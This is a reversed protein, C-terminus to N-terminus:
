RVRFVAFDSSVYVPDLYNVRYFDFTSLSRLALYDPTPGTSPHEVLARDESIYEVGGSGRRGVRVALRTLTPSFIIHTIGQRKLAGDIEDFSKNLALLRRWETNEWSEDALYPHRMHYGMQFGFLKVKSGPPANDNVFRVPHHYAVQNLFERRSLKGSIFSLNNMMTISGISVVIPVALFAPVIYGPLGRGLPTRASLKNALVALSYGAILALAPYIPLLFRSIWTASTAILFFAICLVVWWSLWKRKPLFLYLPALLFAFNPYHRYDGLFYANPNTYYEWFRLPHRSSRLSAEEVLEKEIRGVLEPAEQRVRAFHAEQQREDQQNFYRPKGEDFQAVEGTRFPYVPNQFWVYNKILWPSATVLIITSFIFVDRLATMRAVHKRVLWEFLLMGGLLALWAVATLKIGVSLGGLLGAAILWGKGGGDLYVMLAFTTLFLMGTLTVDIRATVGVEIVMAGGILAIMAFVGTTRDLFRSCFAYVSLGTLVALALSFLRVAIDAEAMLFLGYIMQILFPMNGLSNDSLPYIRGREAFAKMVPLHYITEDPTWPPVSAEVLALLLLGILMVLVYKTRNNMQLGVAVSRRICYSLRLIESRSFGALLLLLAVIPVPKLLGVLGCGLILMGLTGTGLMVSFAVEEAAGAFKLGLVRTIKRGICFTLGLLLSVLTLDFFRDLPALIGVYNENGAIRIHACLTVLILLVSGLILVM